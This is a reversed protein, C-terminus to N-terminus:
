LKGRIEVGVQRNKQPLRYALTRNAFGLKFTDILEAHKLGRSELYELAEPSQKLTEHYYDIVQRLAEQHDADAALPAALKPTSNQKIVKPQDTESKAALPLYDNQLLEVAHRFSVGETKMVWDIVSGGTQYAGMCHWLNKEPTIVLSATDDEHFPCCMVYDKGHPKLTFGKAEVLWVLSVDSKIRDILQDSLRAM